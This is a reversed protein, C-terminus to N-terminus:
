PVVNLGVREGLFIHTLKWSHQTPLKKELWKFAVLRLPPPPTSSIREHGYDYSWLTYVRADRSHRFPAHRTKVSWASMAQVLRSYGHLTRRTPHLTLQM